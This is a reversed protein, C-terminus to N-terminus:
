AHDDFSALKPSAIVTLSSPPSVGHGRLKPSVGLCVLCWRCMILLCESLSHSPQPPFHALTHPVLGVEWELYKARALERWIEDQM